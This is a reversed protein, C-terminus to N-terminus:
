GVYNHTLQKLCLEDIADKRMSKLHEYQIMNKNQATLPVHLSILEAQQYIEEKTALEPWPISSFEIKPNIDSVLIKSPKFCTLREIVGSGIRGMVIIGITIESIRRGFFRNWLGKHIQSNAVHVHRLLTLMMGVTLEAVAPAPADPTYSVHIGLKEAALM